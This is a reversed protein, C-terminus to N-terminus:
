NVIIRPDLTPSGPVAVDYKLTYSGSGVRYCLDGSAPKKKRAPLRGPKAGNNKKELKFNLDMDAPGSWRLIKNSLANGNGDNPDVHIVRQADVSVVFDATGVSPCPVFKAAMSTQTQVFLAFALAIIVAAVVILM